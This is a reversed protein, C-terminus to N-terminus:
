NVTAPAGLDRLRMQFLPCQFPPALQSLKADVCRMAQCGIDTLTPEHGGRFDLNLVLVMAWICLERQAHMGATTHDPRQELIVTGISTSPNQIADISCCVCPQYKMM